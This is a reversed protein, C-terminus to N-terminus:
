QARVPVRDFLFLECSVRSYAIDEGKTEEPCVYVITSRFNSSPSIQVRRGRCIGCMEVGKDGLLINLSGFCCGLWTEKAIIPTTSIRRTKPWRTFYFKRENDM